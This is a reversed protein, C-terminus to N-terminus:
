LPTTVRLQIFDQGPNPKRLGGNSLHQYRLIWEWNGATRFGIGLHEGFNFVTSFEKDGNRFAPAIANISIAGEVFWAPWRFFNYRVTPSLGIQTSNTRDRESGRTSWRGILLETYGTWSGGAVHQQPDRWAWQLGIALSDVDEGRGVQAFAHSPSLISRWASSAERPPPSRPDVGTAAALEQAAAVPAALGFFAILAPISSRM